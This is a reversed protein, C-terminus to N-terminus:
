HFARARAPPGRHGVPGEKFVALASHRSHDQGQDFARGPGGVSIGLPRHGGRRALDFAPDPRTRNRNLANFLARPEFDRVRAQLSLYPTLYDTSHLGLHDRLLRRYSGAAAKVALNQKTLQYLRVLRVDMRIFYDIERRM